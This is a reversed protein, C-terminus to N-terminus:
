GVGDEQVWQGFRAGMLWVTGAQQLACWDDATVASM